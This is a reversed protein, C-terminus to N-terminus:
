THTSLHQYLLKVFRQKSRTPLHVTIQETKSSFFATATVWQVSGEVWSCTRCPRCNRACPQAPPAWTGASNCRKQLVAKLSKKHHRFSLTHLYNTKKMFINTTEPLTEPSHRGGPSRTPAWGGRRRSVLQKRVGKRPNTEERSMDVEEENYGCGWM